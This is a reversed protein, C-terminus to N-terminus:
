SIIKVYLFNIKRLVRMQQEQVWTIELKNKYKQIEYFINRIFFSRGMHMKHQFQQFQTKNKIYEM